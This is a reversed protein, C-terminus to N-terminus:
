KESPFSNQVQGNQPCFVMKDQSPCSSFIEMQFKTNTNLVSPVNYGSLIVKKKVEKLSKWSFLFKRNEKDKAWLIIILM